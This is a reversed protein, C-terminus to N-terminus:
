RPTAATDNPSSPRTAPDPGITPQQTKLWGVDGGVRGAQWERVGSGVRRGSGVGQVCMCVLCLQVWVGVSVGVCGVCGCVGCVCWVCVGGAVAWRPVWGGVWSGVRGRIKHGGCDAQLVVCCRCCGPRVKTHGLGGPLAGYSRFRLPGTGRGREGRMVLEGVCGLVGRRIHTM